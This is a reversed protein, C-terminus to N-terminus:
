PYKKNTGARTRYSASVFEKPCTDAEIMRGWLEQSLKELSENQM